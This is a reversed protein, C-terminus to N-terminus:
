VLLSSVCHKNYEGREMEENAILVRSYVFFHGNPIHEEGLYEITAGNYLYLNSLMDGNNKHLWVM